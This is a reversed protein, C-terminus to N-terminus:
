IERSPIVVQASAALAIWVANSNLSGEFKPVIKSGDQRGETEYCTTLHESPFVSDTSM